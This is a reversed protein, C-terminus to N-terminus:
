NYLQMFLTMRRDHNNVIIDVMNEYEDLVDNSQGSDLEDIDFNEIDMISLNHLVCSSIIIDNIFKLDMYENFFKLKRFKSKLFGFAREIVIRTSSHSFNFQKQQETFAGNDKFPPVLWTLTRYASDGLIFTENPFLAECHNMAEHYLESRRLVRADHYSGPEGCYIYTFKMDPGCVAMLNISPYRKRNFYHNGNESKPKQIRIHTSDIAGIVKPIGRKRQFESEIKIAENGLPWKIINTVKEIFWLFLLISYEASIKRPGYTQKPLIDTMQLEDILNYVICRPLRFHM